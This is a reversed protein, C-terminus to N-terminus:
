KLVAIQDPTKDRDGRITGGSAIRGAGHMLLGAVHPAAMSTGSIKAYDASGIWTSLVGVGPASWDIPPNGFNSFSALIDGIAFASVTYINTGNVRAPSFNKAPKASNGAAIVFIVKASANLVAQDLAVSAGGGLSMNAVDGPLAMQAVYDIGNIVGSTTGGGSKGLVRVSVVKAGPAVGIVGIGNDIAAITGAVHTGHGNEDAYTTGAGLFTRSLTKDVNLDPHDPDIGSDIIWARQKSDAASFSGTVGGGVRAVGWPQKQSTFLSNDPNSDEAAEVPALTVVQDQECFSINLNTAQLREVAQQSMRASFGKIATTYVHVLKGGAAQAASRAAAQPGGTFSLDPKFVCIYSDKIKEGAEQAASAQGFALFTAAAAMVKSWKAM